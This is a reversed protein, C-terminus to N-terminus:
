MDSIADKIESYIAGLKRHAAEEMEELRDMMTPAEDEMTAANHGGNRIIDTYNSSGAGNWILIQGHANANFKM